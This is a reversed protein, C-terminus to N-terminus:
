NEFEKNSKNLLKGFNMALLDEKTNRLKTKRDATLLHENSFKTIKDIGKEVIKKKGSVILASNEDAKYIIKVQAYTKKQTPTKITEQEEQLGTNEAWMIEKSSEKIVPKVNLDDQEEVNIVVPTESEEVVAEALIPTRDEDVKEVPLAASLSGETTKGVNKENTTVQKPENAKIENEVVDERSNTNDTSPKESSSILKESSDIEDVTKAVYQTKKITLSNLSRYGFYGVTAFLLISAAIALRKRWVGRRKSVLQGHIQDWAQPSPSEEHKSLKTKFLNDLRNEM